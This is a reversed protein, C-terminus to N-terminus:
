VKRHVDRRRRREPGIFVFEKAGEIVAINTLGYLLLLSLDQLSLPVTHIISSVFPVFLAVALMVASVVLSILLM